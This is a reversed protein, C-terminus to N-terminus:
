FQKELEILPKDFNSDYVLVKKAGDIIGQLKKVEAELAEIRLRQFEHQQENEGM